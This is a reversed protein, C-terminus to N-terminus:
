RRGDAITRPTLDVVNVVPTKSDADADIAGTVGVPSGVFPTLDMGAPTALYHTQRGAADELAYTP